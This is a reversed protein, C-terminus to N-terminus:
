EDDEGRYGLRWLFKAIDTAGAHVACESMDEFCAHLSEHILVDLKDIGSVKPCITIEKKVFDTLGLYNQRMRKFGIKYRKGRFVHNKM